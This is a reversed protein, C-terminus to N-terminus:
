RKFIKTGTLKEQIEGIAPTGLLPLFLLTLLSRSFTSQLVPRKGDITKMELGMLSKGVTSSIDLISFYFLFYISFVGTTFLIIEKLSFISMFIDMSLGSALGLIFLTIGSASLIILMDTSFALFRFFMQGEELIKEEIKPKQPPAPRPVSVMHPPLAQTTQPNFTPRPASMKSRIIPIEKKEPHFGLGQTIPRFTLNDLDIDDLNMPPPTRKKSSKSIDKNEM